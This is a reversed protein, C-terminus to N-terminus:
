QQKVNKHSLLTSTKQQLLTTPYKQHIQEKSDVLQKLTKYINVAEVIKYDGIRSNNQSRIFPNEKNQYFQQTTNAKTSSLDYTHNSTQKLITKVPSTKESESNRKQSLQKLPPKPIKRESSIVKQQKVVNADINVSKTKPKIIVKESQTKIQLFDYPKTLDNTKPEEGKRQNSYNRISEALKSYSNEAVSNIKNSKQRNTYYSQNRNQISTKQESKSLETQNITKTLIKSHSYQKELYQPKNRITHYEDTMKQIEMDINGIDKLLSTKVIKKLQIEKSTELPSENSPKLKEILKSQEHKSIINNKQQPQKKQVKTYQEILNGILKKKREEFILAAEDENM